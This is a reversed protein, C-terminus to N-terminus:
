QASIDIVSPCEPSTKNFSFPLPESVKWINKARLEGTHNGDLIGELDFHLMTTNDGLDLAVVEQEVGDFTLMYSTVNHQPACVLFPAAWVSAAFLISLVFAIFGTKM